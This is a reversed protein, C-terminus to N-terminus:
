AAARAAESAPPERRAAGGQRAAARQWALYGRHLADLTIGPVRERQALAVVERWRGVPIPRTYGWRHTQNGPTRLAGAVAQYGGLAKMVKDHRM